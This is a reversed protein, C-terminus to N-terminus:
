PLPAPGSSGHDPSQKIVLLRGPGMPAKGQVWEFPVNPPGLRVSAAVRGSPHALEGMWCHTLRPGSPNGHVQGPGIWEDDGVRPNDERFHAENKDTTPKM